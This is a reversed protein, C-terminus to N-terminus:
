VVREAGRQGAVRFLEAFTRRAQHEGEHQGDYQDVQDEGGLEFTEFVREDDHQGYRQSDGSRQYKHERGPLRHINEALDPDDHQDAQDGLVTDQDDFEGVLFLSRADGLHLGDFFRRQM